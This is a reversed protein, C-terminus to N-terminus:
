IQIDFYMMFLTKEVDDTFWLLIIPEDRIAEYKSRHHDKMEWIQEREIKFGTEKSWLNIKELSIMSDGIELLVMGNMGRHVRSHLRRPHRNASARM